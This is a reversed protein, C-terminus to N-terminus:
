TEGEYYTTITDKGKLWALIDVSIYHPALYQALSTNISSKIWKSVVPFSGFDIGKLGSDHFSPVPCSINSM